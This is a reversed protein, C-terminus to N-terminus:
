STRRLRRKALDDRAASSGPAYSGQPDVAVFGDEARVAPL